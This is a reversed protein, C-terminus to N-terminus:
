KQLEHPRVEHEDPTREGQYRGSGHSSRRPWLTVQESEGNRRSVSIRPREAEQFLECVSEPLLVRSHVQKVTIDVADRHTSVEAQM